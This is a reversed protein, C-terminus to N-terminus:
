RHWEHFGFRGADPLWHQLRDMGINKGHARAFIKLEEVFANWNPHNTDPYSAKLLRYVNLFRKVARPTRGVIGGLDGMFDVERRHLFRSVPNLKVVSATQKQSGDPPPDELEPEITLFHSDDGPAPSAGQGPPPTKKKEAMLGSPGLFEEILHATLTANLRKIWFPIPFVKEL